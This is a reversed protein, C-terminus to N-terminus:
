HYPPCAASAGGCLTERSSGTRCIQPPSVLIRNFGAGVSALISGSTASPKDTRSTAVWPPLERVRDWFGKGAEEEKDRWTRVESAANSYGPMQGARRMRRAEKTGTTDRKSAVLKSEM